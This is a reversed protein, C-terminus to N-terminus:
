RGTPESTHSLSSLPMFRQLKGSPHRELSAVCTITVASEQLGLRSLAREVEQKLALVDLGPKAIPGVAPRIGAASCPRGRTPGHLVCLLAGVPLAERITLWPALQDWAWRDM